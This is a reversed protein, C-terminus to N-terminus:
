RKWLIMSEKLVINPLTIIAVAYLVHCVMNIWRTSMMMFMISIINTILMAEIIPGAMVVVATIVEVVAMAEAEQNVIVILKLSIETHLIISDEFVRTIIAKIVTTKINVKTHIRIEKVEVMFIKVELPIDQIKDEIPDTVEPNAGIIRMITIITLIKMIIHIRKHQPPPNKLKQQPQKGKGGGRPKPQKPHAGKFPQPIEEKDKDNSHAIHSYLSPVTTGKALTPLAAALPDCKRIIHELEKAKKTTVPWDKETILHMQIITPMTDIFKDKKSEAKQVLMDGLTDVLDIHEDVDMKQPNFTLINWSQLQEQRTKGWPNYRQLFM